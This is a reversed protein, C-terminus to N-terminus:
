GGVPMLQGHDGIALIPLDYSLLDRLIDQSVMSAEDIFILDYELLERRDWAIVRGSQEDVIPKYILGHITGCYEPFVGAVELSKRLVKSAKGTFTCFAVRVGKQQFQLAKYGSLRTKGTGALGGVTFVRSRKSSSWWADVAQSARDQDPSLILPEQFQTTM